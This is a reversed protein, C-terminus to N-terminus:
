SSEEAACNIQPHRSRFLWACLMGAILGSLHGQWSIDENNPLFEFAGLYVLGAIVGIVVDSIRHDFFGRLMVYGLWGAIVASAGITDTGTPSVLWVFLGAIIIITVSVLAFKALSRYAALFGLILFPISNGEIHSWSAYLFPATFIDPLSTLVHARIGFDADLLYGTGVNVFQVIWIVAFIIAITIAARAARNRHHAEPTTM